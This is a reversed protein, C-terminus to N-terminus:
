LITFTGSGVVRDHPTCKEEGNIALNANGHKIAM